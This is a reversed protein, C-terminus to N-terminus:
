LNYIDKADGAIINGTIQSEQITIEYVKAEDPTELIKYINNTIEKGGKQDGSLFLVLSGSTLEFLLGPKRLKALNVITLLLGVIWFPISLGGQGFGSGAVLIAFLTIIIGWMLHTMSALNFEGYEFSTLQKLPYVVTGLKISKQSLIVTAKYSIITARKDLSAM